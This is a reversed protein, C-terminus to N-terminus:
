RAVRRILPTRNPCLTSYGSKSGGSNHEYWGLWCFVEVPRKVSAISSSTKPLARSIIPDQCARVRTEDIDRQIGEAIWMQLQTQYGVSKAAAIKRASAIQEPMLRISGPSTAGEHREGISKM